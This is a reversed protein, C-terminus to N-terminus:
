VFNQIYLMPKQVREVNFPCHCSIKSWKTSFLNSRPGMHVSFFSKACKRSCRQSFSFNRSVTKAQEYPAWTSNKKILLFTDFIEHCQGNIIILCNSLKQQFNDLSYLFNSLLLRKSLLVYCIHKQKTKTIWLMFTAYM